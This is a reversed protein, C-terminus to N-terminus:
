VEPDEGHLVFARDLQRFAKTLTEALEMYRPRVRAPEGLKLSIESYWRCLSPPLPTQSRHGLWYLAQLPVSLMFLITTMVLPWLQSSGFQMQLFLSAIIPLPLWLAAFRMGRIVFHEPFMPALAKEGPWRKMYENGFQLMQYFATM